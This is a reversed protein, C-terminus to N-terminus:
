QWAIARFNGCKKKLEAPPSSSFIPSMTVSMQCLAPTGSTVMVRTLDLRDVRTLEHSVKKGKKDSPLQPYTSLEAKGKGLGLSMQFRSFPVLDGTGHAVAGRGGVFKVDSLLAHSLCMRGPLKEEIERAQLSSWPSFSTLFSAYLM